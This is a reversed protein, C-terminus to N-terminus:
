YISIIIIINTNKEERIYFPLDSYIPLSLSIFGYYLYMGTPVPLPTKGELVVGSSRPWAPANTPADLLDLVKIAADGKPLKLLSLSVGKMDMSTIFSHCYARVPVAKLQTKVAKLASMATVGMEIVTAGGLNNVLICVEDGSHIPLYAGEAQAIRRIKEKIITDIDTMQGKYAGPEGHLGLGMEMEGPAFRQYVERGPLTAISTACGMTGISTITHSATSTVEELSAGTAALAGATKLVM